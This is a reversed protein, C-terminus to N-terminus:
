GYSLGISFSNLPKSAIEIVINSSKYNRPSNCVCPLFMIWGRDESHGGFIFHHMLVEFVSGMEKCLERFIRHKLIYKAYLERVQGCNKSSWGTKSALNKSGVCAEAFASAVPQSSDAKRGLMAPAKYQVAFVM